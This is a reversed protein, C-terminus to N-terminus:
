DPRAIASLGERGEAPTGIQAILGNTVAVDAEFMPAGTGDVIMGGGIVLDHMTAEGKRGTVTVTRRASCGIM